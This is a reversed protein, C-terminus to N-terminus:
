RKRKKTKAQVNNVVKEFKFENVDLQIKGDTFMALDSAIREANDSGHGYTALNRKMQNAVSKVLEDRDPGAPMEKLREFSEFILKGYHRVPISAMPYKIREPRDLIQKAEQIDFPYDIDLEFNSILALHDWLKRKLDPSNRKQKSMAAMTQVIKEACAQRESRDTLTMCHKVMEQVERGYEPLVLKERQTNYDLGDIKM